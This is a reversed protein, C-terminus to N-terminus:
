DAETGKSARVTASMLGSAHGMVDVLRQMERLQEDVRLEILELRAFVIARLEELMALLEDDAARNDVSM